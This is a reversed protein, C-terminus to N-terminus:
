LFFNSTFLKKKDGPLFSILVCTIPDPTTKFLYSPINGCCQDHVVESLVVLNGFAPYFIFSPCPNFPHYEDTARFNFPHKLFPRM